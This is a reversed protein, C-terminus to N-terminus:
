IWLGSPRRRSIRRPQAVAANFTGPAIMKEAGTLYPHRFRQYDVGAMNMTSGGFKLPAAELRLYRIGLRAGQETTYDEVGAYVEHNGLCGFIGAESRLEALRRLCIDLDRRGLFDKDGTVLAVHANTEIAMGVAYRLERESLFPSLHIDTLQVLRLGNLDEPLGPITVNQERMRINLRQM